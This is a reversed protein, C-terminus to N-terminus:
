TSRDYKKANLTLAAGLGALPITWVDVLLAYNLVGVWYSYIVYITYCLGVSILTLGIWRLASGVKESKLKYAGLVSFAVALPMLVVSNLFGVAKVGTLLFTLGQSGLMDLWRFVNNIGLAVIYGVLAMGAWKWLGTRQETKGKYLYVKIALIMLVPVAVVIQLLYNLTLFFFPSSGVNSLLLTPRLLFWSIALFSSIYVCELVFATALLSKIKSFPYGKLWFLLVAVLAIATGILRSNLGIQPGWFAMGSTVKEYDGPNLRSANVIMSWGNITWYADFLLLSVLGAIVGLKTTKSFQSESDKM